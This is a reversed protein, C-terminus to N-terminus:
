KEHSFARCCIFQCNSTSKNTASDKHCPDVTCLSAVLAAIDAPLPAEVRISEGNWPHIFTLAEGHLAQRNLGAAPRGGYLTDGLIPVGLHQLHVRVQHTRGTELRLRLLAAKSQPWAEVTEYHTVARDGGPSVRRRNAHHRDKGIPADITGRPVTPIGTTLALYSREIRKERMAEDLVSLAWANKAYLVPGTTDADLRHVHRVAVAQGTSEYYAAVAGALSGLANREVPHVPMGPPKSVVLIFDDEYLVPLDMWEPVFGPLEDSFLRLRLKGGGEQIGGTSKLLNWRRETLPLEERKAPTELWEGKRTYSMM